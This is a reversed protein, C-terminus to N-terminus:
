TGFCPADQTSREMNHFEGAIQKADNCLMKILSAAEKVSIQEGNIEITKM